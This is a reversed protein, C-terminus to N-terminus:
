FYCLTRGVNSSYTKKKAKNENKLRKNRNNFIDTMRQGYSVVDITKACLSGFAELSRVALICGNVRVVAIKQFKVESYLRVSPYKCYILRLNKGHIRLTNDVM